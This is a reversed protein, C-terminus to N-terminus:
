IREGRMKRRYNDRINHWARRKHAEWFPDMIPRAPTVFKLTEKRLFFYRRFRSRKGLGFGLSRFYRRQRETIERTFGEQQAEAIRKWSKSVKSGVWGVRMEFPEKSTVQYMVATALRRLPRKSRARRRAIFSLPALPKGGPAGQRIEKKLENRLRFAEVKVATNLAKKQRASEAKLAKELQELGKIAVTIM